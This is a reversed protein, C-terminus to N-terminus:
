GKVVVVKELRKVLSQTHEKGWNPHVPSAPKFAEMKEAAKKIDSTAKTVGGGYFEPMNLTFEGRVMYIRPNEPNIAEAKGLTAFILPSYKQGNTMPNELLQLQYTFAKLVMLETEMPALKEAAEIETLATKALEQAETMNTKMLEYGALLRCQAAYYKPLWENPEANAIRAFANATNKYDDATKVAAFQGLTKGLAMQLKESQAFISTIQIAIIAIIISVKKM